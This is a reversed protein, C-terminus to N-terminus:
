TAYLLNKWSSNAALARQSRSRVASRSGFSRIGSSPMMTFAMSRLQAACTLCVDEGDTGTGNGRGSGTGTASVTSTSAAAATSPPGAGTKATMGTMEVGTRAVGTTEVGTRAGGTM